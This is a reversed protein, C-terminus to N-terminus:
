VFGGTASSSRRVNTVVYERVTGRGSARSNIARRAKVTHAALGAARADASRAYLARV